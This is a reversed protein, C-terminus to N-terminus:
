DVFVDCDVVVSLGTVRVRAPGGRRIADARDRTRTRATECFIDGTRHWAVVTDIVFAPCDGPQNPPESV